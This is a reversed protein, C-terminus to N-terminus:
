KLGHPGVSSLKKNDNTKARSQKTQKAAQYWFRGLIIYPTGFVVCRAPQSVGSGLGSRSRLITSGQVWLPGMALGYRAWLLGMPCVLWNRVHTSPWASGGKVVVGRLLGLSRNKCAAHGGFTSRFADCVAIKCAQPNCTPQM